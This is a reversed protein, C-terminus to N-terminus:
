FKYATPPEVKVVSGNRITFWAQEIVYGGFSNKARYECGVLWGLDNTYVETCGNWKLSDPAKLHRKLYREVEYYHGDWASATPKPGISALFAERKRVQKGYYEAKQKYLANDPDLALLKKYGDYNAKLNSAPLQKVWLYEADALIKNALKTLDADDVDSYEAIIRKAEIWDRSKRLKNLTALVEKKNAEFKAQAEKRKEKRARDAEAIKQKEVESLVPTGKVPLTPKTTSPGQCLKTVLLAFILALCIKGVMNLKM